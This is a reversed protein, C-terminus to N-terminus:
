REALPVGLQLSTDLRSRPDGCQLPDPSHVSFLDKMDLMKHVFHSAQCHGRLLCVFLCVLIRRGFTGTSKDSNRKNKMREPVVPALVRRAPPGEQAGPFVDGGVRSLGVPLGQFFVNGHRLYAYYTKSLKTKKFRARKM